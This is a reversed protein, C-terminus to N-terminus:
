KKFSMLTIRLNNLLNDLLFNMSSALSSNTTSGLRLLPHPDVSKSNSLGVDYFFSFERNSLKM